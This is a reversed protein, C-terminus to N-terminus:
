SSVQEDLSDWATPIDGDQHEPHLTFYDAEMRIGKADGPMSVVQYKRSSSAQPSAPDQHLDLEWSDAPLPEAPICEGGAWVLSLIVFAGRCINALLHQASFSGKGTTGKGHAPLRASKNWRTVVIKDSYYQARILTPIMQNSIELLVLKSILKSFSIWRKGFFFYILFDKSSLVRDGFIWNPWSVNSGGLSM